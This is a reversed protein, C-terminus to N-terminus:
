LIFSINTAIMVLYTIPYAFIMGDIRDLLGGHGPIIVGTDKIKSSRKFYSICIDGLQSVISVLFSFIVLDISFRMIEKFLFFNSLIYISLLTLIFSGLMGSYTKNPSLKTLKPGKILKGFIFGGLDTSICIITITLFCFYEEKTGNRLEYVSLFSLVLFFIGFLKYNKKVDMRCWEFISILFCLLLFINFYYSGKIIIFIVVPLLIISSIIRKNLENITM